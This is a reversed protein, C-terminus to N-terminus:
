SKHLTYGFCPLVVSKCTLFLFQLARCMKAKQDCSM